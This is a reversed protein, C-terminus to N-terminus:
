KRSEGADVLLEIGTVFRAEDSLLWVVAATSDRVEITEPILQVEKFNAVQEEASSGSLRAFETGMATDIFGPHLSNCRIQEPGLERALSVSLARVGIKSAVYPSVFGYPKIAVVSSVLVLAGGPGRARVHPVTARCTYFVGTLNVDILTQWNEIPTEWVPYARDVIGANAVVYDIGGLVSAAENAAAELAAYDRVDAEFTLAMRGNEEVLRKTELLDHSTATAYAPTEIKGAGGLDVLALDAGEAALRVAHSRGQGRGAGTVFAVKGGFRGSM